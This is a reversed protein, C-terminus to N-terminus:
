YHLVGTMQHLIFTLHTKLREWVAIPMVSLMHLTVCHLFWIFTVMTVHREYPNSIKFQINRYVIALFWRVTNLTDNTNEPLLSKILFTIINM